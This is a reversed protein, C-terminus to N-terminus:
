FENGTEPRLICDCYKCLSYWTYKFKQMCFYRGYTRSFADEKPLGGGREKVGLIRGYTNYTNETTYVGANLTKQCYKETLNAEHEHVHVCM